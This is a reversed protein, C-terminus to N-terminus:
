AKGHCDEGKDGDLRLSLAAAYCALTDNSVSQGRLAAALQDWYPLPLRPVFVVPTQIAALNQRLAGVTTQALIELFSRPLGTITRAQEIDRRALERALLLYGITLNVSEERIVDDRGRERMVEYVM